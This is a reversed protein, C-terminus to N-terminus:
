KASCTSRRRVSFRRAACRSRTLSIREGTGESYTVEDHCNNLNLGVGGSAGNGFEGIASTSGIDNHFGGAVASVHDAAM